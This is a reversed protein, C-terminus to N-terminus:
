NFRWRPDGGTLVDLGSAFARIAAPDRFSGATHQAVSSAPPGETPDLVRVPVGM